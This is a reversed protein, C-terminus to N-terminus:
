YEPPPPHQIQLDMLTDSGGRSERSGSGHSLSGHSSTKAGHGIPRIQTNFGERSPRESFGRAQDQPPGHPQRTPQVAHVGGGFPLPRAATSLASEQSSRHGLRSGFPDPPVPPDYLSFMEFPHPMTPVPPVPPHDPRITRQSRLNGM